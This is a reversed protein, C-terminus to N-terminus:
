LLVWVRNQIRYLLLNISLLSAPEMCAWSLRLKSFRVDLGMEAEAQFNDKVSDARFDAHLDVFGSKIGSLLTSGVM